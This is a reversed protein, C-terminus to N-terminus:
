LSILCLLVSKGQAPLPRLPSITDISCNIPANPRPFGTSTPQKAQYISPPARVHQREGTAVTLPRPVHVMCVKGLAGSAEWHEWRAADALKEQGTTVLGKYWEEAAADGLTKVEEMEAKLQDVQPKFFFKTLQLGPPPDSARLTISAIFNLSPTFFAFPLAPILVSSSSFLM